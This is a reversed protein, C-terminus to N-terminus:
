SKKYLVMNKDREPILNNTTPFLNNIIDKFIASNLYYIIM